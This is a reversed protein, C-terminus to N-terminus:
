KRLILLVLGTAPVFLEVAGSSEQKTWRRALNSYLAWSIAASLTNLYAAPSSQLRERLSGWSFAVEQTMVLFVGALALATGPVLWLSARKKLLPLSLLITLTPWLYNLLAIELLQNRDKSLGVAIYIAVSYFVFLSGCGYLYRLPLQRIESRRKGSMALRAICFCGGILYVAAGATISGVQESLSRALAFTASWLLIAVLGSGTSRNDPILRV